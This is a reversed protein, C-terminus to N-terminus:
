PRPSATLGASATADASAAGDPHASTAPWAQPRRQPFTGQGVSAAPWPSAVQPSAWPVSCASLLGAGVLLWAGLATGQGRM